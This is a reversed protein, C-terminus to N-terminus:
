WLYFLWLGFMTSWLCHKPLKVEATDAADAQLSAADDQSTMLWEMPIHRKGTGRDWRVFVGDGAKHSVQFCLFM